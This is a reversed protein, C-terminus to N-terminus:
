GIVEEASNVKIEQLGSLVTNSESAKKDGGECLLDIVKDNYIEVISIKMSFKRTKYQASNICSLLRIMSRPIVGKSEQTLSSNDTGITHTKGSSAHGFAIVTM